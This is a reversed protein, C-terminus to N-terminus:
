TSARAMNRYGTGLCSLLVTKNSEDARVKFEVDFARKFLRLAEISYLSLTGVRIRSVDEPGLCMLLFALTQAGTDVCGGRRVEELLMAAVRTGLDEPLVAGRADREPDLCAEASLAVGSTSEATLCVSLGPSPGCSRGAYNDTHVWVDPLLRHLLGKASYAVRTGSSAPVRMTVATGRVRKIKGEDTLDVPRSIERVIPCYLRVSGGGGPAAGRREVKLSPALNEGDEGAGALKSLLPILSALVYDPTPDISATGDTIGRLTLNLAEKGFPALPAVGELFWGVGRAAGGGISSADDDGSFVPCDHDVDGGLLVGPKMRMQTGTSNIEVTTGNTMADILRLFSAEHERLGPADVDDPRINRILIPRHTLLSVAVRLRFQRAGDEFRLTKSTPAPAGPGNPSRGAAM